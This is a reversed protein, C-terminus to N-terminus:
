RTCFGSFEEGAQGVQVAEIVSGGKAGFFADVFSGPQLLKVVPLMVEPEQDAAEEAALEGHLVAIPQAGALGTQGAAAADDAHGLKGLDGQQVIVLQDGAPALLQRRGVDGIRLFQGDVRQGGAEVQDFGGVAVVLGVGQQHHAAHRHDRAGPAAAHQGVADVADGSGADGAHLHARAKALLLL